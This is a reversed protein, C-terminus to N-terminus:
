GDEDKDCNGPCGPYRVSPEFLDGCIDCRRLGLNLCANEICQADTIKSKVNQDKAHQDQM